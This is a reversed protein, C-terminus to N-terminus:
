GVDRLAAEREAFLTVGAVAVGNQDLVAADGAFGAREIDRERGAHEMVDGVLLMHCPQLLQVPDRSRAAQDRDELMIRQVRERNM